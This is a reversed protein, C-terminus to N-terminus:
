IAKGATVPLQIMGKGLPTGTVTFGMQHGVRQIIFDKVHLNVTFPM